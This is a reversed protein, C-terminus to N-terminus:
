HIDDFSFLYQVGAPNWQGFSPARFTHAGKMYISGLYRDPLAADLADMVQLTVGTGEGAKEFVGFQIAGTLRGPADGLGVKSRADIAIEMVVFARSQNAFDPGPGNETFVDVPLSALTALAAASLTEVIQQRSM